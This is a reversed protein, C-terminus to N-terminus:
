LNPDCSVSSPNTHSSLYTSFVFLIQSFFFWNSLSPRRCISTNFVHPPSSSPILPSLSVKPNGLPRYHYLVTLAPSKLSLPKIGPDPLDGSPPCPLGSWYEQRSFGRSLPARHAVTWLTASLRVRSFHSLCDRPNPHSPLPYPHM